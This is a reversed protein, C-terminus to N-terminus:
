TPPPNATLAHFDQLHNGAGDLNLAASAMVAFRTLERMLAVRVEMAGEMAQRRGESDPSEDHIASVAEALRYPLRCVEAAQMAVAQPGDVMVTNRASEIEGAAEMMQVRHALAEGGLGAGDIKDERTLQVLQSVSKMFDIYTTRRNDLRQSVHDVYLQTRAQEKAQELEQRKSRAAIRAQWTTGMLTLSAGLGTGVVGVLATIIQIRM